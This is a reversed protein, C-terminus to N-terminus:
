VYHNGEMPQTNAPQDKQRSKPPISNLQRRLLLRGDRTKSVDILYELSRKRECETLAALRYFRVGRSSRSREILTQRELRDLASEVVSDEYGLLRAIQEASTLSVGHCHVFALVDWESILSVGLVDLCDSVSLTPNSKCDIFHKDGLSIELRATGSIARSTQSLSHLFCCNM